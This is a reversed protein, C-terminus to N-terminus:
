GVIPRWYAKLLDDCTMSVLETGELVSRDPGMLNDLDARISKVNPESINYSTGIIQIPVQKETMKLLELNMSGYSFGLFVVLEAETILQRMADVITEEKVRETFVRIQSAVDIMQSAHIELGFDIGKTDGSQWPLRGVRGYPHIINLRAVIEQSARLDLLSYNAIAHSLYHEICRDYNFTIFAVDDFINELQPRQVNELLMQTFTYHWSPAINSFRLRDDSRCYISSAREADLISSAIGLKGMLLIREDDAHTHLFNDISFAQPMAGAIARGAELYPNIDKEGKERIFSNLASTIKHSGTKQTHGYEFKINLQKAIKSKLQEGMPLGVERSGGAGVIFVTKRNFM